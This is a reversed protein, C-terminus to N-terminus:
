SCMSMMLGVEHFSPLEEDSPHHHHGEGPVSHFGYFCWLEM